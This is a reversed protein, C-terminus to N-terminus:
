TDAGGDDSWEDETAADEGDQMEDQAADNAALDTRAKSADDRADQADGKLRDIAAQSSAPTDTGFLGGEGQGLPSLISDAGLM